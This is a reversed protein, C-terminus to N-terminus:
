PKVEPSDTLHYVTQLREDPCPQNEHLVFSPGASAKAYEHHCVSCLQNPAFGERSGLHWVNNGCNPCFGERLRLTDDNSLPIM